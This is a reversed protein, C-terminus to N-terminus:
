EEEKNELNAEYNTSSVKLIAGLFTDLVTITGVVQEGWPLNWVQALGFYATGIAPLLIQAWFKLRDYTEDTFVLKSM